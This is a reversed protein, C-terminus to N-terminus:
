NRLMNEIQILILSLTNNLLAIKDQNEKFGKKKLKQIKMILAEANKVLKDYQDNPNNKFKDYQDNTFKDYQDNPNNKFKDYQDNM